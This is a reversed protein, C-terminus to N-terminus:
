FIDIDAFTFKIKEPPVSSGLDFLLVPFSPIAKYRASFLGHLATGPSSHFLVQCVGSRCAIKKIREIAQMFNQENVGEMDGIILGNHFRIWAKAEGARIVMTPHYSKYELYDDSRYVGAYGDAIISNPLGKEALLDKKITARVYKQFFFPGLGTKKAFSEMPLGGADISFYEMTETKQWGLRILGPYSQQNPFGFVLRIGSERCLEYTMLVLRLFLGKHQYQPHTMADASQAALIITQGYQIFCPIVGYFAAPRRREDYAIFGIHEVGTYATNYKRPFYDKGPATGYVESRLQALDAINDSDLRAISYSLKEISM